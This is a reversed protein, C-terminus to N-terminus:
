MLVNLEILILSQADYNYIRILNYYIFLFIYNSNYIRILNYHRKELRKFGFPRDRSSSNFAISYWFIRFERSGMFKQSSANCWVNNDLAIDDDAAAVASSITRNGRLLVGRSLLSLFCTRPRQGRDPCVM